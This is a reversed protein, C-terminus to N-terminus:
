SKMLRVTQRLVDKQVGGNPQHWPPMANSPRPHAAQQQCSLEGQMNEKPDMRLLRDLPWDLRYIALNRINVFVDTLDHLRTAPCDDEDDLADDDDDVGSATTNRALGSKRQFAARAEDENSGTHYLGGPNAAAREGM